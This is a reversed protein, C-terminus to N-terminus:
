SRESKQTQRTNQIDNNAMKDMQGKKDNYWKDKMSKRNRIVGKTDIDKIKYKNYTDCLDISSRRPNQNQLNYTTCNLGAFDCCIVPFCKLLSCRDNKREFCLSNAIKVLHM